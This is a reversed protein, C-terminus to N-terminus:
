RLVNCLEQHVEFMVWSSYFIFCTKNTRVQIPSVPIEFQNIKGQPSLIECIILECCNDSNYSYLVWPSYHHM